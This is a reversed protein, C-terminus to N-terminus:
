VKLYVVNWTEIEDQTYEVDPIMDGSFLLIM